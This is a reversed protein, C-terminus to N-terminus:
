LKRNWNTEHITNKEDLRNKCDKCLTSLWGNTEHRKASGGTEGCEECVHESSYGALSIINEVDSISYNTYIRLAAYKEKIQLITFCNFHRNIFRFRYHYINKYNIWYWIKKVFHPIYKNYVDNDILLLTNDILKYWGDGCESYNYGLHYYKKRLTRELKSNM